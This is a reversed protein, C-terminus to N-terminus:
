NNIQKYVCYIYCILTSDFIYLSISILLECNFVRSIEHEIMKITLQEVRIELHIFNSELIKHLFHKVQELKSDAIKKQASEIRALKVDKTKLVRIQIKTKKKM